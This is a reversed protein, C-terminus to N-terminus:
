KNNISSILQHIKNAFNESESTDALYLLNDQHIIKNETQNVNFGMKALLVKSTVSFGIIKNLSIFQIIVNNLFEWDSFDSGDILIIASYEENQDLAESLAVTMVSSNEGKATGNERSCIIVDHGLEELIVQLSVFMMDDFRETLVLLIPKIM